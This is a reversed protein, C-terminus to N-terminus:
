SAATEGDLRDTSEGSPHPPLYNVEARKPRKCNKAPNKEGPSKRKLSNIDLEPCPVERRRMKSRYNAMEYKLHQQWGYMGSFSTGAVRLCAHKKLLAEVVVLIQPGTPYATFQLIEDALKELIDSNMSPNQLLSGDNDYAVNGAQLLIEVNFSFTPIVFHTPWPESRHEPPQPLLITDSSTVSSSDDLFSMSEPTSFAAPENIPTLTLHVSPESEVLKITDKDQIVDTSTLTFFQNDFDKDMYM